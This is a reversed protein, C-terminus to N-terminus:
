CTHGFNDTLQPLPSHLPLLPCWPMGDMRSSSITRVSEFLDVKCHSRLILNETTLNGACRIVLDSFEETEVSTLPYVFKICKLFVSLGTDRSHIRDIPDTRAQSARLGTRTAQSYDKYGPLWSFSDFSFGRVQVSNLNCHSILGGSLQQSSTKETFQIAELHEFLSLLFRFVGSASLATRWTTSIVHILTRSILEM